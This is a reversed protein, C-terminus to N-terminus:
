SKPLIKQGQLMNAELLRKFLPIAAKSEAAVEELKHGAKCISDTVSMACAIEPRFKRLIEKASPTSKISKKGASARKENEIELFRKTIAKTSCGAHLLMSKKHYEIVAEPGAIFLAKAVGKTNDRQNDPDTHPTLSQLMWSESKLAAEMQNFAEIYDIKFQLAKKGTFGMVLLSFGDKTIIYEPNSKGTSDLYESLAFNRERYSDPLEMEQISRIIDGHRKSFKSAIKRSTTLVKGGEFTVLAEM